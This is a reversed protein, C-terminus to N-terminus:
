NGVMVAKKSIIKAMQMGTSLTKVSSKGQFDLALYHISAYNM